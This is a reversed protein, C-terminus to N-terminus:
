SVIYNAFFILTFPGTATFVAQEDDFPPIISAPGPHRSRTGSKFLAIIVSIPAAARVNAALCPM